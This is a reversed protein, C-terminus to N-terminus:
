VMEKGNLYNLHDTIYQVETDSFIPNFYKVYGPLENLTLIKIFQFEANPKSHIMVILNKIPIKKDGWHHLNLSLGSDHMLVFLAFSSRKIQQVPSRLDLNNISKESWNKTEIIFVGAPTILIHDIQITKIYDNGQSYYIAKSFSVSFDNILHCNDPLVELTKVVQQEGLAGPIFSGIENIAMKKRDLEFLSMQAREHVAAEFNAEIFRQRNRKIQLEAAFGALSSNVIENFNRRKRDIERQLETQRFKDWLKAFIQTSSGSALKLKEEVLDEIELNLKREVETKHRSVVADLENLEATLQGKEKLILDKSQALIENRKSVYSNKFDIVEKLSKFDYINNKVLHDKITTLSGITNYVRSM